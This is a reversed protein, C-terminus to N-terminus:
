NPILYTNPIILNLINQSTKLQKRVNLNKIQNTKKKFIFILLTIWPQECM